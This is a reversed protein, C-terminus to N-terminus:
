QRGFCASIRTRLKVGARYLQRRTFRRKMNPRAGRKGPMTVIYGQGPEDHGRVQSSFTPFAKDKRLGACNLQYLLQSRM